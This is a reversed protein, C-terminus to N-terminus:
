KKYLKSVWLNYKTHLKLVWLNYKASGIDCTQMAKEKPIM